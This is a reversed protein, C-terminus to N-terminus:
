LISQVASNLTLFTVFYFSQKVSTTPLQGAFNMACDFAFLYLPNSTYLSVPQATVVIREILDELAEVNTRFTKLYGWFLLELPNLEPLM